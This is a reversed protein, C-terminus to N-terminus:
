QLPWPPREESLRRIFEISPRSILPRSVAAEEISLAPVGYRPAVSNQKPTVTEKDAVKLFSIKAQAIHGPLPDKGNCDDGKFGTSIAAYQITRLFTSFRTTYSGHNSFYIFIGLCVSVLTVGIAIGYAM